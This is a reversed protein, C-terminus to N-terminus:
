VAEETLAYYRRRPGGDEPQEGWWSRVVGQQEWRALQPYLSGPAIRSAKWLDLGYIGEPNAKLVILVAARVAVGRAHCAAVFSAGILLCTVWATTDDRSVAMALTVGFLILFGWCVLLTWRPRPVGGQRVARNQLTTAVLMLVLALAAPGVDYM